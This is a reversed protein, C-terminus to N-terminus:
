GTARMLQHAHFNSGSEHFIWGNGKLSSGMFFFFRSKVAQLIAAAKPNKEQMVDLLLPPLAGELREYEV